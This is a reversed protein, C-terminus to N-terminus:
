PVVEWVTGTWRMGIHGGFSETPIMTPLNIENPTDLEAFCIGSGDIEAYTM